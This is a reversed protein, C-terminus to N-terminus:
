LSDPSVAEIAARLSRANPPMEQLKAFVADWQPPDLWEFLHGDDDVDVIPNLENFRAQWNSAERAYENSAQSGVHHFYLLAVFAFALFALMYGSTHM